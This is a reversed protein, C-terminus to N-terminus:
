ASASISPSPRSGEATRRRGSLHRQAIPERLIDALQRYLPGNARLLTRRPLADITAVLEDM